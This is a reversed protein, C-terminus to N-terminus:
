CRYKGVDYLIRRAIEAANHSENEETVYLIWQPSDISTRKLRKKAARNRKILMLVIERDKTM